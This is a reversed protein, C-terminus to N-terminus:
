AGAFAHDDGGARHVRETVLRLGFAHAPAALVTHRELPEDVLERAATGREGPERLLDHGIRGAIARVGDDVEPELDDCKDAAQAPDARVRSGLSGLRM